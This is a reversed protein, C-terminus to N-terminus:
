RFTAGGAGLVRLTVASEGFWNKSRRVMLRAEVPLALRIVKMLLAEALRCIGPFCITRAPQSQM